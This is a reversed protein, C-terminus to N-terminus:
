EGETTESTNADLDVIIVTPMPGIRLVPTLLATDKLEHELPHQAEETNKALLDYKWVATIKRGALGTIQIRGPVEVVDSSTVDRWKEVIQEGSQERSELIKGDFSEVPNWAAIILRQKNQSDQLYSRLYTRVKVSSDPASITDQLDTLAVDYKDNRLKKPNEPMLSSLNRYVNGMPRLGQEPTSGDGYYLSSNEEGYMDKYWVIVEVGLWIEELYHRALYAAQESEGYIISRWSGWNKPAGPPHIFYGRESDAVVIHKGNAHKAIMGRLWTVDELLGSEPMMGARHYGHYTLVDITKDKLLGAGVATDIFSRDMWAVSLAAIKADPDVQKIKLAVRRAMTAYTVPDNWYNGMPFVEPENCIEWLIGRGKYRTALAEAYKVIADIILPKNEKDQEYALPIQDMNIICMVRFGNDLYFNLLSDLDTWDYVGRKDREIGHWTAGVRVWQVGIRKLPELKHSTHIVLGWPGSDPFMMPGAAHDEGRAVPSFGTMAVVFIAMANLVFRNSM